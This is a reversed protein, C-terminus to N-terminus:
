LGNITTTKIQSDDPVIQGGVSTIKFEKSQGNTGTLTYRLRFTTTDGDAVTFGADAAIAVVSDGSYKSLVGLRTTEPVGATDSVTANGTPAVEVIESVLVDFDEDNNAEVEFFFDVLTGTSNVSWSLNTISATSLSLTHENGAYSGSMEGVGLTDAGEADISDNAVSATVTTLDAYNGSQDNFDAYIMVDVTDGADITVDSDNLDVRYTAAGNGDTTADDATALEAEYKTGDIKVNLTNIVSDAFDDATAGNDAFTIIVPLENIKIDSSDTDVKLKFAGILVDNTNDNADIAITTSDPDTSSSKMTLLDNASSSEYGFTEAGTGTWSLTTDISVDETLVMGTADQYRLTSVKVNWDADLDDSDVSGSSVVVYFTNKDGEKVVANSLAISKSFIDPSGSDRSFDSADVSGVETSGMFVKVTDLYDTLKESSVAYSTNALEVKVNTIAVDSDNAEVKFGLVKVDEKSETADNEVDTSTSTISVSGAGGTLAGGTSGSTSGGTTGCAKGTMPDFQGAPCTTGTSGANAKAMSMAGFMGDATLGNAAQWVKVKAATMPGFSGDATAGVLTQLTKVYEGKSGVKLTSPGFDYSAFAVSASLMLALAFTGILFKKLM